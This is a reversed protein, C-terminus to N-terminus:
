SECRGTLNNSNMAPTLCWHEEQRGCSLCLKVRKRLHELTRTRLVDDGIYFFQGRVVNASKVAITYAYDDVLWPEPHTYTGQRHYGWCIMDTMQLEPTLQMEVPGITRILNFIPFAKHIRASEWDSRIHHMFPEGRDFFVDILDVFLRGPRELFFNLSKGFVTRACLREPSPHHRSAKWQAHAKLDIRCTFSRLDPHDMFPPFISLLGDILDDRQETSWGQYIGGLAMLDTMHIYQLNGHEIRVKNWALKLESWVADTTSLCTLTM